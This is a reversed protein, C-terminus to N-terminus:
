KKERNAQIHMKRQLNKHELNNQSGPPIYHNYNLNEPDYKYIEQEKLSAHKYRNKEQRGPSVNSHKYSCIECKKQHPLNLFTCKKCTWSSNINPFDTKRQFEIQRLFRESTQQMAFSVRRFMKDAHVYRQFAEKRRRRYVPTIKVKEQLEVVMMEEALHANEETIIQLLTARRVKLQERFAEESVRTARVKNRYKERDHWAVITGMKKNDSVYNDYDRQNAQKRRENEIIRHAYNRSAMGYNRSSM